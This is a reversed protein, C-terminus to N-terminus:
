TRYNFFSLYISTCSNIDQAIKYAEHRTKCQTSLQKILQMIENLLHDNSYMQQKEKEDKIKSQILQLAKEM